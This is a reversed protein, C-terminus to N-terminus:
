STFLGAYKPNNVLQAKREEPLIDALYMLYEPRCIVIPIDTNGVESLLSSQYREDERIGDMGGTMNKTSEVYHTYASDFFTFAEDYAEMRTAIMACTLELMCLDSHFKGYCDEGIISEYLSRLELLIAIGEKSHNLKDSRAIAQTLIFELEHLLALVAEGCYKEGKKGEFYSALLIERSMGIKSQEMAKKEAKDYAGMSTYTYLLSFIVNHNEKFAEELLAAAEELYINPKEAEKRGKSCLAEALLRQLEPEAPFEELGKRLFQIMETTDTSDLNNEIFFRNGKQTYDKIKAERDNDYGFLSDITVHFYNAIAPLMGMDPYCGDSEWRSVAQATVGLANALDEQRRGDRKRLEKIKEGLKVQM